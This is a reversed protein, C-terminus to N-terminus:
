RLLYVEHIGYASLFYSRSVNDRYKDKLVSKDGRLVAVVEGMKNIFTVTAVEEIDLSIEKFNIKEKEEDNYLAPSASMFRENEGAASFDLDRSNANVEMSFALGIGLLAAVFKRNLVDTKM